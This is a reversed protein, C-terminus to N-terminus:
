NGCILSFMCYKDKHPQGIEILVIIELKVCKECFSMIESKKNASYFKWKDMSPCRFQKWLKAKIFLAVIFMYTYTDRNFDSKIEKLYIGLLWIGQDYPLQILKPLFRWVSKWLPQVLKCEYWWHILIGKGGYGWWCKNNTKKIIAMRVPILHFSFTTKVKM